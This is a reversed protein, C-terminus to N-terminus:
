VIEFICNREEESLEDYLDGWLELHELDIGTSKGKEIIEASEVIEQLAMPAVDLLTDRVKEAGAFDKVEVLTKIESFLEKVKQSQDQAAPQGASALTASM